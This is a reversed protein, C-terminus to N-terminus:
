SDSLNCSSLDISDIDREIFDKIVKNAVPNKKSEM